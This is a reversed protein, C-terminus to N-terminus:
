HRQCQPNTSFDTSYLANGLPIMRSIIQYPPVWKSPGNELQSLHINPMGTRNRMFMPVFRIGNIITGQPTKTLGLLLILTTRTRTSGQFSVFNGLSYSVLTERNDKTIYKEIPQLVHPHSGLIAAAGAELLEKAFTQQTKTPQHQYEVGWHPSVIIADVKTKLSKITSLLYEKDKAQNCYLVQKYKDTQGNTHETCALWAINFEKVKLYTVFPTDNKTTRTGVFAIGAQKLAQITKDIGVASRDLTHNNATSVVTFGSAKLSQALSPHYNFAPFDTYVQYDWALPDRNERGKSDLGSAIPGELNAFSIDAKKLYPTAESWLSEFGQYSAKVQLPHHLILDGTAAIVLTQGKACAQTFTLTNQAMACHGTLFYTLLIWRYKKIM